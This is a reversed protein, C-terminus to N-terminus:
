QVLESHYMITLSSCDSSNSSALSDLNSPSFRGWDWKILLLDWLVQYLSSGPVGGEANPLTHTTIESWFCKRSRLQEQNGDTEGPFHQSLTEFRAVFREAWIAELEGTVQRDKQRIVNYLRNLLINQALYGFIFCDSAEGGCNIIKNNRWLSSL